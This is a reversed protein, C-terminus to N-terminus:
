HASTEASMVRETAADNLKKWRYEFQARTIGLKRAAASLNGASAGLAATLLGEELVELALGESLVTDCLTRLADSRSNSGFLDLGDGGLPEEQYAAFLHDIQIQEDAPVLIVAREVMNSLERINGPFRYSRLVKMARESFGAVKKDYLGSFRELFRQALLPIDDLRERLPPITVPYASLRFYLDSRFAGNRMAMRLDANTAAVVRVDVKRVSTGGLREVEGEQLVRLLKSQAPGPLDGIEDLFLTGGEAREFRGPRSQNAGTFAGREAGFLESEILEAPIAACNVAVFPKGARPSMEHLTRALMEKGVGTEGQLLVAIKTRAAKAVLELAARYKPSQGVLDHSSLWRLADRPAPAEHSRSSKADALAEPSFYQLQEEADDWEELPKGVTLCRPDGSALCEVENFLIVKGFLRSTFGTSYGIQMWCLPGHEGDPQRTGVEDEWSHDRVFEGYFTGKFIDMQLKLPRVKVIGKLMHLQPGCLFAEVDNLPRLRRALMADRVGSVYGMQTFLGRTYGKGFREILEGRLWAVSSAHLLLMRDEDQWIQGTAADFRVLSRLDRNDPYRIENDSADHSVGPTPRRTM